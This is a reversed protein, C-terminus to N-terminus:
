KWEVTNSYGGVMGGDDRRWSIHARYRRSPSFGCVRHIYEGTSKNFLANSLDHEAPKFNMTVYNGIPGLIRQELILALRALGTQPPSPANKWYLNVCQGKNSEKEYRLGVESSPTLPSPNTTVIRTTVDYWASKRHWQTKIKYATSPSLGEITASGTLTNRRITPPICAAGSNGSKKWCIEFKDGSNVQKCKSLDWSITITTDTKGSVADVACAHAYSAGFSFLAAMFLTKLLRM